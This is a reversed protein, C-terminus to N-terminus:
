PRVSSCVFPRVIAFRASLLHAIHQRANFVVFANAFDLERRKDSQKAQKAAQM